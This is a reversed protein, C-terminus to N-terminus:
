KEEQVLTCEYDLGLTGTECEFVPCGVLWDVKEKLRGKYIKNIEFGLQGSNSSTVLVSVEKGLLDKDWDVKHFKKLVNANSADEIVYSKAV